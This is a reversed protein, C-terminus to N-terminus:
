RRKGGGQKRGDRRWGAGNGFRPKRFGEGPARPRREVPRFAAELGEIASVQVRRGIFHEIRRLAIVDERGVLSVAQGSAGARGTRGIRHVYDEAVKPLDYNIVHTITAVDLGRAAVDTAVLVKCEGRRLRNLARTRDRQGLDGHLAVAAIGSQHLEGALQEAHRKTATFVIAQGMGDDTLCSRLVQDRHNANDVYVVHDDIPAADSAVRAVEMWAPDRLLRDALTRVARSLTATFCVTQRTAPVSEGIAVVDDAFGMDLMRDAEDLVLTTVRSLDIRGGQLQDLLRGPTAVLIEYPSALLRNQLHYSEGGTVCVTTIRQLSRSLAQGHRAVQQALERTPTLVLVRPGFAPRGRGKAPAPSVAPRIREARADIIRQLAPLLFAATKGTGTPASAILDRGALLLPIAEAQVPTPEVIELRRLAAVLPAALGMAAFRGAPTAPAAAAPAEAM